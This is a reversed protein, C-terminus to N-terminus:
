NCQKCASLYNASIPVLPLLWTPQPTASYRCFCTCKVSFQQLIVRCWCAGHALGGPFLKTSAREARDAAQQQAAPLFFVGRPSVSSAIVCSLPRGNEKLSWLIIWVCIVSCWSQVFHMAHIQRQVPTSCIFADSVRTEVVAGGGGGGDGGGWFFVGLFGSFWFGM